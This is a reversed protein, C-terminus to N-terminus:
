YYGYERMEVMQLLKAENKELEKVFLMERRANAKNEGNKNKKFYHDGELYDTLYRMGLELSMTFIGEPLTKIEWESLFESAVALYGRTFALAVSLDLDVRVINGAEDRHIQKAASRIADGYDYAALGPMVTDLDVLAAARGTEKDILINSLRLDNHTTRFPIKNEEALTLLHEVREKRKKYFLIEEEVEKARGLVDQEVAQEFLEYRHITNHFNKTMQVYAEEFEFDALDKQFCGLIRGCEWIHNLSQPSDYSKAHEIFYFARYYEGEETRYCYGGNVAPVLSMTERYPIQHSEDIKKQIHKTVRNMNDMLLELNNAVGVNMKQLIYHVTEGNEEFEVLFTDNIHGDGYSIADIYTGGFMFQNIIKTIEKM